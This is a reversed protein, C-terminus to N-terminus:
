VRENRHEGANDKTNHSKLLTHFKRLLGCQVVVADTKDAIDQKLGSSTKSNTRLGKKAYLTEHADRITVLLDLSFDMSLACDYPRAVEETNIDLTPISTPGNSIRQFAKRMQAV